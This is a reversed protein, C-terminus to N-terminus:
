LQYTNQIWDILFSKTYYKGEEYIDYIEQKTMQFTNETETYIPINIINSDFLPYSKGDNGISKGIAKVFEMISSKIETQSKFYSLTYNTKLAILTKTIQNFEHKAFSTNEYIEILKTKETDPFKDLHNAVRKYKNKNYAHYIPFNDCVGGDIFLHNQYEQPPWILPLASSLMVGTIVDMDPTSAISLYWTSNVSINVTTVVFIKKYKLYLERFTITDTGIKEKVIERLKKEILKQGDSLSFTRIFNYFTVLGNSQAPSCDDFNMETIIKFIEIDTFGLICMLGLIAGGSTCIWLQSNDIVKRLISISGVLAITYMSGGALIITDVKMENEWNYKLEYKFLQSKVPKLKFIKAVFYKHKISKKELDIYNYCNPLIQYTKGKIYLCLELDNTYNLVNFDLIRFNNHIKHFDHLYQIESRQHPAPYYPLTINLINDHIVKPTETKYLYIKPNLISDTHIILIYRM